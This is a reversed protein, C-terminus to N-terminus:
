LLAPRFAEYLNLDVLHQLSTFRGHPEYCSGEKGIIAALFGEELAEDLLPLAFRRKARLDVRLDAGRLFDDAEFFPLRLFFDARFFRPRSKLSNKHGNM